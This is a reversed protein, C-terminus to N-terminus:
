DELGSGNGSDKGGDAQDKENDNDDGSYLWVEIHDRIFSKIGRIGFDGVGSNGTSTHTMLDFLVVGDCGNIVAPSGQVDAFVLSENSHGYAFHTFAYITGRRLDAGTSSHALTGSYHNVEKSRRMEVLWMIGEDGLSYSSIGSAVSPGGSTKEQLLFADAIAIRTDVTIDATSCHSYFAELFWKAQRLRSCEAKIQANHQSIVDSGGFAMEDSLANVTDDSLRFFRKAVYEVDSNAGSLILQYANKMSGKSFPNEQIYGTFSDPLTTFSTQGTTNDITCIIKEFDIKSSKHVPKSLHDVPLPRFMSSIQRRNSGSNSGKSMQQQKAIHEQSDALSESRPRRRGSTRPLTSTTFLAVDNFETDDSDGHSSNETECRKKYKIFLELCIVPASRQKTLHKFQSPLVQPPCGTGYLQRVLNALTGSSTGDHLLGNPHLRISVESNQLPISTDKVWEINLMQLIESKIDPLYTSQPYRKHSSGLAADTTKPRDSRRYMWCVHAHPESTPALAQEHQHLEATSITTTGSSPGSSSGHSSRSRFREQLRATRQAQTEGVDQPTSLPPYTIPPSHHTTQTGGMAPHQSSPGSRDLTCADTCASSECLQIGSLVKDM